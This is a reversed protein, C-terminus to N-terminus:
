QGDPRWQPKSFAAGSRIADIDALLKAETTTSITGSATLERIKPLLIQLGSVTANALQLIELPEM